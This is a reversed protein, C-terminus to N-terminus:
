IGGKIVKYEMDGCSNFISGVYCNDKDVKLSGFLELDIMRDNYTLVVRISYPDLLPTLPVSIFLPQMEPHALNLVKCNIM